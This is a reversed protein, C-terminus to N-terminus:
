GNALKGSLILIPVSVSPLFLINACMHNSFYWTSGQWDKKHYSVSQQRPGFCSGKEVIKYIKVVSKDLLFWGQILRNQM